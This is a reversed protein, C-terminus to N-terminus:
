RMRWRRSISSRRSASPACGARERDRGHGAEPVDDAPLNPLAALLEDIQRRAAAAGQALQAESAKNEASQRMVEAADGGAKKITGIERAM